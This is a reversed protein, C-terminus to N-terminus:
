VYLSQSTFTVEFHLAKKRLFKLFLSVTLLGGSAHLYSYPFYSQNRLIKSDDTKLIQLLRLFSLVFLMTAWTTLVHQPLAPRRAQLAAQQHSRAFVATLRTLSVASGLAEQARHASDSLGTGQAGGQAQHPPSGPWSCM